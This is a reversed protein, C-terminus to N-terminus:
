KEMRMSKSDPSHSRRAGGRAFRWAGRQPLIHPKEKRHFHCKQYPHRGQPNGNLERRYSSALVLVLASASTAPFFTERIKRRFFALFHLGSMAFRHLFWRNLGRALFHALRMLFEVVGHM